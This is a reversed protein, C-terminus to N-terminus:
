DRFGLRERLIRMVSPIELGVLIGIVVILGYLVIRFGLGFHAFALCMAAASCGGLLAILLGIESFRAVSGSLVYRWVCSGLGIAWFMLVVFIVGLLSYVLSGVLAAPKLYEM